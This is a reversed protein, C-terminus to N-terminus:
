LDVSLPTLISWVQKSTEVYEALRDMGVTDILRELQANRQRDLDEVVQRGRDTLRVETVRADEAGRERTVLGKEEMKKLLVSVRGTTVRMAKSIMGATVTGETRYLYLLIGLMGESGTAPAANRRQWAAEQAPRAEAFLRMLEDVQEQTAM